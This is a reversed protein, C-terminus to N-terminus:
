ESWGQPYKQDELTSYCISCVSLEGPCSNRSVLTHSTPTVTVLLILRPDRALERNDDQRRGYDTYLRGIEIM